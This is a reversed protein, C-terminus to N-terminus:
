FSPHVNRPYKGMNDRVQKSLKIFEQQLNPIEAKTLSIDDATIVTTNLMNSKFMAPFIPTAAYPTIAM